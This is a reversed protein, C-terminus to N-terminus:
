VSCNSQRSFLAKLLLLDAGGDSDLARKGAITPQFEKDRPLLLTQQKKGVLIFAVDEQPHSPEHRPLGELWVFQAIPEEM